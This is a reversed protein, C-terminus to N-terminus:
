KIFNFFALPLSFCSYFIGNMNTVNNTDWKSIDPLSSLSSCRSFLYSMNTVNNTNWNCLDPLEKLSSCGSFLYSMNIVNNTNWNSMDPLEKLSSCGSFMSSLKKLYKTNIPFSIFIKLNNCNKFMSNLNIIVDFIKMKIIYNKINKYNIKEILDHFKNKIILKAKNKNIRIFNKDIIKLENITKEKIKFDYRFKGIKNKNIDNKNIIESNNKGSSINYLQSIRKSNIEKSKYILERQNNKIKM